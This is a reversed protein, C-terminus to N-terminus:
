PRVAGAGRQRGVLLGAYPEDPNNVPRAVPVPKRRSEPEAHQRNLREIVGDLSAATKNVDNPAYAPKTEQHTTVPAVPTDPQAGPADSIATRMAAAGTAPDGQTASPSASPPVVALTSDGRAPAIALSLRLPAEPDPPSQPKSADGSAAIALPGAAVVPAVGSADARPPAAPAPLSAGESRDTVPAPAPAPAPAVRTDPIDVPRYAGLASSARAINSAKREMVRSQSAASTGSSNVLRPTILFLRERAGYSKTESRFLGGFLPVDGLVPIKHKDNTLSEAHYGGIVL